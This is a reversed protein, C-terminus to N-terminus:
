TERELFRTVHVARRREAEGWVEVSSHTDCTSCHQVPLRLSMCWGVGKHPRIYVSKAWPPQMWIDDFFAEYRAPVQLQESEVLTITISISISTDMHYVGCEHVLSAHADKVEPMEKRVLGVEGEGVMGKLYEVIHRRGRIILSLCPCLDVIGAWPVCAQEYAERTRNLQRRPFAKRPHLVLCRGCFAWRRSGLNILFAMREYYADTIDVRDTEPLPPPLHPFRLTETTDAISSSHLSYLGNSSLALCFRTLIPLYTIIHDFLEPPLDLLLSKTPNDSPPSYPKPLLHNEDEEIDELYDGPNAIEPWFNTTHKKIPSPLGTSPKGTSKNTCNPCAKTQSENHGHWRWPRSM